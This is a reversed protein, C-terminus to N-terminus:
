KRLARVRRDIAAAQELLVANRTDRSGDASEMKDMMGTVLAALDADKLEKIVTEKSASKISLGCCHKILAHVANYIENADKARKIGARLAKVAPDRKKRHRTLGILLVALLMVAGAGGGIFPLARVPIRLTWYADDTIGYLVQDIYVGNVDSSDDGIGAHTQPMDGQVQIAAGPIEATEYAETVTSFYSVAMSDVNIVGNREPVLIAEFTKQAYYRNDEASEVTSKQTEYVTFGPLGGAIMRNYGDLNCNGSATVRLTLAEGFPLDTRSYVGDLYLDGVIGSFDAPRGTQPLPKVLIERAETQLYVPESFSFFGGLGGFPGAASGGRGDNTIVNVQLNFSPINYLGSRVPDLIMRKVEYKAYLIDDIYVYEAKLQNEPMDATMMGDILVSETFGCNEITLRTYLEYTLIIKEGLYATTHSLNAKVFMDPAYAAEDAEEHITIELANSEYIQNEYDVRAKVTLRGATKPMVTLQYDTQYTTEGQAMVTSTSQSQSLVDFYELGTIETIRGGQANILSVVLYSSVGKRLSLQNMSVVIQPQAQALAFLRIPFMLCLALVSMLRKYQRGAMIVRM